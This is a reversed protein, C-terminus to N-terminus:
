WGLYTSKVLNIGLSLGGSSLSFRPLSFSVFYCLAIFSTNRCYVSIYGWRRLQSHETGLSRELISGYGWCGRQTRVPLIHTLKEKVQSSAWQRKKLIKLRTEGYRLSIIVYLFISSPQSQIHSDISLIRRWYRVMCFRMWIVIRSPIVISSTIISSKWTTPSYNQKDEKGQPKKM